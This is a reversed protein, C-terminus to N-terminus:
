IATQMCFINARRRLICAADVAPWGGRRHLAAVFRLGHVYPFGLTARVVPPAARFEPSQLGRAAPLMAVAKSDAIATFHRGCGAM